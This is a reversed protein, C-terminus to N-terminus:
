QNPDTPRPRVKNVMEVQEAIFTVTITPAEKLSPAPVVIGTTYWPLLEGDITICPAGREDQDVRIHKALHHARGTDAPRMGEPQESKM